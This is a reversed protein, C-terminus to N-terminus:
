IWSPDHSPQQKRRAVGALPLFRRCATRQDYGFLRQGGISIRVEPLDKAIELMKQLDRNAAAASTFLGEYTTFPTEARRM